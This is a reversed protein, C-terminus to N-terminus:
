RLRKSSAIRSVCRTPSSRRPPISVCREVSLLERRRRLRQRARIRYWVTSCPSQASRRRTDDRVPQSFVRLPLGNRRSTASPPSAAAEVKRWSGGRAEAVMAARAPRMATRRHLRPVIGSDRGLRVTRTSCRTRPRSSPFKRAFQAFYEPDSVQAIGAAAPTACCCRRPTCNLPQILGAPFEEGDHGQYFDSIAFTQSRRNREALARVGGSNQHSM